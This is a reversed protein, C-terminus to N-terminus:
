FEIKKSLHYHFFWAMFKGLTKPELSKRVNATGGHQCWNGKVSRMTCIRTEWKFRFLKPSTEQVLADTFLRKFPRGSLGAANVKSSISLADPSRKTVLNLWMLVMSIQLARMVHWPHRCITSSAWCRTPMMNQLSTVSAHSRAVLECGCMRFKVVTVSLGHKDGFLFIVFAPIWIIALAKLSRSATSKFSQSFTLSSPNCVELPIPSCGIWRQGHPPKEPIRALWPYPTDECHRTTKCGRWSTSRGQPSPSRKRKPPMAQSRDQFRFLGFPITCRPVLRRSHYCQFSWALVVLSM